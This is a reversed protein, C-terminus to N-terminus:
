HEVAQCEMPLAYFRGKGKTAVDLMSAPKGNSDFMAGTIPVMFYFYKGKPQCLQKRIKELMQKDAKIAM